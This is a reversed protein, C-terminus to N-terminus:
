LMLQDFDNSNTEQRSNLRQINYRHQQDNSPSDVETLMPKARYKPFKLLTLEHHHQTLLFPMHILRCGICALYGFCGFFCAAPQQFVTLFLGGLWNLAQGREANREAVGENEGGSEDGDEEAWKDGASAAGALGFKACDFEMRMCRLQPEEIINYYKRVSHRNNEIACVPCLVIEVVNCCFSYEPGICAGEYKQCRPCKICCVFNERDHLLLDMRQRYVACLPCLVAGLFYCPHHWISCYSVSDWRYEGVVFSNCKAPEYPHFKTLRKFTVAM